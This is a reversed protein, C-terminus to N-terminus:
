LCLSALCRTLLLCACFKVPLLLVLYPLAFLALSALPLNARSALCPLFRLLAFPVYLFPFGICCPSLCFYPIALLASPCALLTARFILRSIIASHLGLFISANCFLSSPLLFLLHFSLSSFVRRVGRIMAYSSMYYTVSATFGDFFLSFLVVLDRRHKCYKVTTSLLHM